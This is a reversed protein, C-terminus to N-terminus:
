FALQDTIYASVIWKHLCWMLLASRPYTAKTCNPKASGHTNAQPSRVVPMYRSSVYSRTIHIVQARRGERGSIHRIGHSDPLFPVM